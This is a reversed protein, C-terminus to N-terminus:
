SHKRCCWEIGHHIQCDCTTEVTDFTLFSSLARPGFSNFFAWCWVKLIFSLFYIESFICRNDELLSVVPVKKIAHAMLCRMQLLTRKSDSTNQMRNTLLKTKMKVFKWRLIQNLAVYIRRLCRNRADRKEIKSFLCGGM